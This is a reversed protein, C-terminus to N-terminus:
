GATHHEQEIIPKYGAKKMLDYIFLRGATTWKIFPVSYDKHAFLTISVLGMKAYEESIAWTKNKDDKRLVGHDRLFGNMRRATWGYDNAIVIIPQPDRFKEAYAKYHERKLDDLGKAQEQLEDVSNMLDHLFKGLENSPSEYQRLIGPLVESTLWRKLKKGQPLKCSLIMSYVGAESIVLTKQESGSMSIIPVYKRDEEDVHTTISNKPSAYGLVSAVDKGIFWAQGNLNIARLCGLDDNDFFKVSTGETIMEKM